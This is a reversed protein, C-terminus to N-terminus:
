LGLLEGGADCSDPVDEITPSQLLSWEDEGQAQLEWSQFICAKAHRLEPEMGPRARGTPSGAVAGLRARVLEAQAALLPGGGSVHPGIEALAQAAGDPSAEFGYRALVERQAAAARQAEAKSRRQSSGCPLGPKRKRAEMGLMASLETLLCRARAETLRPAPGPAAELAPAESHPRCSCHGPRGELSAPLEVGLALLRRLAAGSLCSLREPGCVQWNEGSAAVLLQLRSARGPGLRSAPAEKEPRTTAAAPLVLSVEGGVAADHVTAEVTRGELQAPGRELERVRHRMLFWEVEQQECHSMREPLVWGEAAVLCDDARARAPAAAM